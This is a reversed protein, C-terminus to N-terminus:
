PEARRHRDIAEDYAKRLATYLPGPHGDGVPAQDLRTIPLVEKTASTLLVEDAEEVEQRSITRAQHEIGLSEALEVLLSRRIGELLDQSRPPYLLRGQKVVWINSAAGETLQDERFLLAEAAGQAVAQERALVNGLLAISKIDCRHWRLDELCIASLGVTRDQVSPRKLPSTMAFVTPSPAPRPFAHDRRAVGRTVQLYVFQDELGLRSVLGDVVARWAEPAHPNPLHVSALSRTLRTFHGDWGFPRRSYIPVVEYIGDGFLFGRDLVSVQCDALRTWQGNLYAPADAHLDAPFTM